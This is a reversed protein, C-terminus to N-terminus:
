GGMYETDAIILEGLLGYEYCYCVDEEYDAEPYDDCIDYFCKNMKKMERNYSVYNTINFIVILFTIILCIIAITKWINKKM